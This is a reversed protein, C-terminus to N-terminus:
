PSRHTTARQMADALLVLRKAELAPAQVVFRRVSEGDFAAVVTDVVVDFAPGLRLAVAPWLERALAVIEAYHRRFVPELARRLGAQTRSAVVLEFWAQALPSRSAARLLRLAVMPDDRRGRVALERRYRQVLRRGIDEGASAVLQEVTAFHRFLGGQSVGARACVEQVTTGGYGLEVLTAITADVLKRTTAARREAQTRRAAGM